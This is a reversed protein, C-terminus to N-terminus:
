VMICGLVRHKWELPGIRGNKLAPSADLILGLNTSTNPNPTKTNLPPMVGGSVILVCIM